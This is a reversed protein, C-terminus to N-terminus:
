QKKEVIDKRTSGIVGMVAKVDDDKVKNNKLATELHKALADFEADTIAMGKHSEKMSKGTYKLPGGSVSSVLDVLNKKLAAVQEKTPKIGPDRFFNVKPDAGAAAVFEDVVKGVGAAGGMRDWLTVPAPDVPPPPKKGEVIDKRTTGIVDMVAKADDDKVGNKKLATALHGALADFQADTIEMGKHSDKMSKGTYKLPGGSVSSVLEVLSKKLDAVGKDDLKYKGDRFFDVKPDPAAAAVFDDIVKSVGNKGGLKDWLTMPTPELPPPKKGEVIDKRTGGVVDMVAKADEDKVGNKKLAAALHGALADFEANTIEMGKHSEKMSQGTYKLPGGSVSSILEVLSKKLGAVAKDDLKYKGGRDFNVKPDPAAAAVFDDVVKSVGAQGGLKDWLTKPTEVKKPEVIDKRTSGVVDLVAKLDDGKVGNTQLATKLHGALADFEADTIGMGKHSDKMSRGTYKLPGGSVSSVLEVLSKKLGAVGKADLTYKGGRFFDVKPDPAAAAVFDDIVKSVGKEGGLRDWLSKAVPTVPTPNPNTEKRIQDIVSRLVFAKDPDRSTKAQALGGDIAKQLNPRHALIPKISTLAGEYLRYCGLYDGSNYVEAGQNIFLRLTGFVHADITKTDPGPKEEEAWGTSTAIAAYLCAALLPLTLLRRLPM